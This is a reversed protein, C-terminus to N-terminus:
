TQQDIGRQYKSRWGHLMYLIPYRSDPNSLYSPPLYVTVDRDAPDGILNGELAASHVKIREKSGTQAQTFQCCLFILFALPFIKKM